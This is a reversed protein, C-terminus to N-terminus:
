KSESPGNPVGSHRHADGKEGMVVSEPLYIYQCVGLQVVWCPISSM